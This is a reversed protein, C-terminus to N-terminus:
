KCCIASHPRNRWWCRILSASIRCPSSLASLWLAASVSLPPSACSPRHSDCVSAFAFLKNWLETASLTVHTVFALFRKGNEGAHFVKGTEQKDHVYTVRLSNRQWQLKKKKCDSLYGSLLSPGLSYAHTLGQCSVTHWRLPHQSLSACVCVRVCESICFHLFVVHHWVGQARRPHLAASSM